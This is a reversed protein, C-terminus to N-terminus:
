QCHLCVFCLSLWAASRSRQHASLCTLALMDIPPWQGTEVLNWLKEMYSSSPSWLLISWIHWKLSINIYAYYTRCSYKQGIWSLTHVNQQRKLQSFNSNRVLNFSWVEIVWILKNRIWCMVRLFVPLFVYEASKERIMNFNGSNEQDEPDTAVRDFSSKAPSDNASWSVHRVLTVDGLMLQCRKWQWAVDLVKDCVFQACFKVSVIWQICIWWLTLHCYM